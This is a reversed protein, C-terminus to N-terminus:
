NTVIEKQINLFTETYKADYSHVMVQLFDMIYLAEIQILDGSKNVTYFDDVGYTPESDFKNGMLVKVFNDKGGFSSVLQNFMDTNSYQHQMGIIETKDLWIKDPPNNPQKKIHENDIPNDLLQQHYFYLNEHLCETLDLLKITTCVFGAPSRGSLKKGLTFRGLGTRITQLTKNDIQQKTASIDKDEENTKDTIFLETRSRSNLHKSHVYIFEAHGDELQYFNGLGKRRTMQGLEDLKGVVKEFMVQKHNYSADRVFIENIKSNKVSFYAFMDDRDLICFQFDKENKTRDCLTKFDTAVVKMGIYINKDFVSEVVVKSIDRSCSCCILFVAILLIIKRQLSM